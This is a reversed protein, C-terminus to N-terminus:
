QLGNKVEVVVFNLHLTLEAGLNGEAMEEDPDFLAWYGFLDIKEDKVEGITRSSGSPFVAIVSYSKGAKPKALLTGEDLEIPSPTVKAFEEISKDDQGVKLGIRLKLAHSAKQAAVWKPLKAYFAETDAKSLKEVSRSVEYSHENGGEVHEDM